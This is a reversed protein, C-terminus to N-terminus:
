TQGKQRAALMAVCEVIARNLDDADRIVVVLETACSTQAMWKGAYDTQVHLQFRKVLAMAQADDHLPMYGRENAVGPKLVTVHGEPLAVDARVTSYGAYKPERVIEYGMAEACLKTMELDTM